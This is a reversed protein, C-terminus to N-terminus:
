TTMSVAVFETLNADRLEVRAPVSWPSRDSRGALM